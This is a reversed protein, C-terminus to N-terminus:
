FVKPNLLGKSFILTFLNYLKVSGKNRRVQKDYLLFRHEVPMRTFVSLVFAGLAFLGIVQLLNNTNYPISLPQNHTASLGFNKSIDCCENHGAQANHLGINHGIPMNCCSFVFSAFAVLIAIFIYKRNRIINM